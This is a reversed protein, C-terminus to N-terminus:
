AFLSGTQLRLGPPDLALEGGAVIRTEILDAEARRHHIVSRRAINVILYHRVSPLRFYDALKASRDRGGTSPSIVEVVVLPDDIETVDDDLAPGCRVSADPEYVTTGDIRVAMGDPLAECPLRAEGIAEELARVVRNKTRAHGLREPSMAVVEGTVLEYHETEPRTMAWAIFEDATMRRPAPATM